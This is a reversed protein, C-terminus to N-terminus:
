QGVVVFTLKATLDTLALICHKPKTTKLNTIAITKNSKVTDSFITANSSDSVVIIAQGSSYNTSLITVTLSDSLFNLDNQSNCSFKNANITNTFSNAVNAIVPSNLDNHITSTTGNDKCSTFCLILVIIFHPKM